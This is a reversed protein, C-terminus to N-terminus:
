EWEIMKGLSVSKEKVVLGPLNEYLGCQENIRVSVDLQFFVRQGGSADDLTPDLSLHLVFGITATLQLIHIIPEFGYSHLRKALM